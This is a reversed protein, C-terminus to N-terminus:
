SHEIRSCAMDSPPGLAAPRPRRKGKEKKEEKELRADSARCASQLPLNQVAVHALHHQPLVHAHALQERVVVALQEDHLLHVALHAGLGAEARAARRAPGARM